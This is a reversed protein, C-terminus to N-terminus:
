RSKQLLAALQMALTPDGDIQIKKQLMAIAPNLKGKALLLFNELTIKVTCDAPLDDNTVRNPTSAADIFVKGDGGFDVKVTKGLGSDEGLADALRRTIDELM